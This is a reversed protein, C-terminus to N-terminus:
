SIRREVTHINKRLPSGYLMKVCFFIDYRITVNKTGKVSM